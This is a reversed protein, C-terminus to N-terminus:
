SLSIAWIPGGVRLAEKKLRNMTSFKRMRTLVEIEMPSSSAVGDLRVWEHELVQAATARRTPDRVLM